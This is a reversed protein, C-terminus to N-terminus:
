LIINPIRRVHATKRVEDIYVCIVSFEWAIDTTKFKDLLYLQLTKALKKQKYLHVNDEPRHKGKKIEDTETEM